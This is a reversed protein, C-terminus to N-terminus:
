INWLAGKKQFIYRNGTTDKGLFINNHFIRSLIREMRELAYSKVKGFMDVKNVCVHSLISGYLLDALSGGAPVIRVNRGVHIDNMNHITKENM